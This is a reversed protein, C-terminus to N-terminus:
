DPTDVPLRARLRDRARDILAQAVPDAGVWPTLLDLDAAHGTFGLQVIHRIFVNDFSEPEDPQYRDLSARAEEALVEGRHRLLVEFARERRAASAADFGFLNAEVTRLRQVPLMLSTEWAETQRTLLTSRASRERRDVIVALQEECLEAKDILAQDLMTDISEHVLFGLLTGWAESMRRSVTRLDGALAYTEDSRGSAVLSQISDHSRRAIGRVHALDIGAFRSIQLNPPAFGGMAERRTQEVADWWPRAVPEFREAELVRRLARLEDPTYAVDVFIYEDSGLAEEVYARRPEVRRLAWYGNGPDNAAARDILVEIEAWVRLQKDRQDWPDLDRYRESSERLRAAAVLPHDEPLLESVVAEIWERYEADGFAWFTM